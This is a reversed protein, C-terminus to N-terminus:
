IFLKTNLQEQFDERLNEDQLICVDYCGPIYRRKRFNLKLNVRSVVLHHDNSKVDIVASRSVRTDQVSGALRRNVVFYDILNAIKGDHSYLTLKHAM